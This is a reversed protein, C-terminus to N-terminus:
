FISEHEEEILAQIENMLFQFNSSCHTLTLKHTLTRMSDKVHKNSQLM